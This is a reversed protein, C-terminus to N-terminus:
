SVFVAKVVASLRATAESSSANSITVNFRVLPGFESTTSYEAVAIGTATVSLVTSAFAKWNVGDISYEGTVAITNTGSAAFLSYVDLYIALLRARYIFPLPQGYTVVAAGTAGSKIDADNLIPVRVANQNEM